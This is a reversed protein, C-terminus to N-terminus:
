RALMMGLTLWLAAYLSAALAFFIAEAIVRRNSTPNRVTSM